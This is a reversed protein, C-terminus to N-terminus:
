VTAIRAPRPMRDDPKIDAAAGQGATINMAALFFDRRQALWICDSVNSRADALTLRDMSGGRM